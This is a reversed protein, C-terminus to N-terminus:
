VKGWSPAFRPTPYIKPPTPPIAARARPLLVPGGRGGGEQLLYQGADTLREKNVGDIQVAGKVTGGLSSLLQCKKVRLERGCWFAPGTRRLSSGNATVSGRVTCNLSVLQKTGDAFLDGGCEFDAGLQTVTSDTFVVNGGFTGRVVGLSKCASFDAWGGVRLKERTETLRSFKACLGGGVKCNLLTVGSDGAIRLDGGVELNEGLHRLSPTGCMIQLEGGIFGRIEHFEVCEAIDFDGDCKFDTPTTKLAPLQSLSLSGRWRSPLRSFNPCAGLRLTTDSAIGEPLEHMGCRAFVLTKSQMGAMSSPLRACDTFIIEDAQLRTVSELPAMSVEVTMAKGAMKKLQRCRKFHAPGHCHFNPHVERVGSGDFKGWRLGTVPTVIQLNRCGEASINDAAMNPGFGELSSGDAIVSWARCNLLSLNLCREVALNGKCYFTAGISQIGAGDLHVDKLFKGELKRLNACGKASFNGDAGGVLYPAPCFEEVHSGDLNVDGEVRCQCTRLACGSDAELNGTIVVDPLHTIKSRLPHGRLDVSGQVIVREGEIREISRGESVIRLFEEVELGRSEGDDTKTQTRAM